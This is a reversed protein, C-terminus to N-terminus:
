VATPVECGAHPRIYYYLKPINQAQRPSLEFTLFWQPFNSLSPGNLSIETRWQVAWKVHSFISFSHFFSQIIQISSFILANKVSHVSSHFLLHLLLHIIPQSYPRGGMSFAWCSRPAGRPILWRDPAQGSPANACRGATHAVCFLASSNGVITRHVLVCCPDKWRMKSPMPLPPPYWKRSEFSSVQLKLVKEIWVFTPTPHPPSTSMWCKCVLFPACVSGFMCTSCPTTHHPTPTPHYTWTWQCKCDLFPVCVRQVPPPTPYWQDLRDDLFYDNCTIEPDPM